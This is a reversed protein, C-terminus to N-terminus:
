YAAELLGMETRFILVPESQFSSLDIRRLSNLPTSGPHFELVSLHLLYKRIYFMPLGGNHSDGMVEADISFIPRIPNCYLQPLTTHKYFGM